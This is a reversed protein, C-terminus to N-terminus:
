DKIESIESSLGFFSLGLQVIAEYAVNQTFSVHFNKRMRIKQTFKGIQLESAQSSSITEFVVKGYSLRALM